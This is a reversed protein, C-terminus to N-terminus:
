KVRVEVTRQSNTGDCEGRSSLTCYTDGNIVLSDDCSVVARCASLGSVNTFSIDTVGSCSCVPTDLVQILSLQVGSEAAYFARSSLLSAVYSRSGTEVLRNVAVAILALIVIIFIAVPLSFGGSKKLSSKQLSTKKLSAKKLSSLRSFEPFM